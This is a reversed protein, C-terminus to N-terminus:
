AYVERLRPWCVADHGCIVEAAPTLTMYRRIEALSRCYLHVDPCFTPILDEELTRRSYAADGALLLERGGGLRLLVSQHGPSHGTTSLLRISGDGLLDVARGFSAFSDVGPAEYDVLRWDFAHDFLEPRYGQRLSGSRAAAWERRDVVFTAAPFESVASTHDWHLHTMVILRVDTPEMGLERLQSPVDCGKPAEPGFLFAGRRGLNERPDDAISAHLGTDVLIPGASPHNLLFAPVPVQGMQSRRTFMGMGRPFALPGRPRELFGPPAITRGTLLPRVATTAGEKGGPLPLHVPRPDAASTSM